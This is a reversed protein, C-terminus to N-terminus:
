HGIIKISTWKLLDTIDKFYNKVRVLSIGVSRGHVIHHRNAIISDLADMQEDTISNEFSIMWEKSFSGLLQKYKECNINTIFKLQNVVFRNVEISSHTRAYEYLLVRLSHEVLGSILVCLYRAWHALIEEEQDFNRALDIISNIRQIESNIQHIM